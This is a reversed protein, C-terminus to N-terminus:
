GEIFPLDESSQISPFALMVQPTAKELGAARDGLKVARELDSWNDPAPVEAAALAREVLSM